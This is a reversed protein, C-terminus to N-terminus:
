PFIFPDKPAFSSCREKIWKGKEGGADASALFYFKLKMKMM